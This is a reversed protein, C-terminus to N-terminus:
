KGKTGKSEKTPKKTKEGTLKVGRGVGGVRRSTGSQLNSPQESPQPPNSRIEGVTRTDNQPASHSVDHPHTPRNVTQSVSGTIITTDRIATAHENGQKDSGGTRELRGWEESSVIRCGAIFEEFRKVDGYDQINRSKLEHVLKSFLINITIQITGKVPRISRFEMFDTSSVDSQIRCTKTFDTIDGYPDKFQEETNM